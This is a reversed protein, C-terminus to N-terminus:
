NEGAIGALDAAAKNLDADAAPTAGAALNDGAGSTTAPTPKTQDEPTM